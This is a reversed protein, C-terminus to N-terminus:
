AHGFRENQLKAHSRLLSRARLSGAQAKGISGASRGLWSLEPWMTRRGNSSTVNAREAMPLLRLDLPPGRLKRIAELSQIFHLSGGRATSRFSEFRHKGGSPTPVPATRKGVRGFVPQASEKRTEAGHARSSEAMLQGQASAAKRNKTLVDLDSGAADM